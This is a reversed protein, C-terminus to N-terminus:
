PLLLSAPLQIVAGVRMPVAVAAVEGITGGGLLQAERRRHAFLEGERVLRQATVQIPHQPNGVRGRFPGLEQGHGRRASVTQRDLDSQVRLQMRRGVGLRLHQARAIRALRAPDDKVIRKRGNDQQRRQRFAELWLRAQAAPDRRGGAGEVKEVDLFLWGDRGVIVRESPSVGLGRLEFDARLALLGERGPFRDNFYAELGSPLRRLVSRRLSLEPPPAPRRNEHALLAADPHMLPALVAAAGTAALFGAVLVCNAIRRPVVKSYRIFM